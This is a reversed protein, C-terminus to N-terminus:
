NLESTQTQKLKFITGGNNELMCEASFNIETDPTLGNRRVTQPTADVAVENGQTYAHMHIHM